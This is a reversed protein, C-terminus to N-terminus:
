LSPPAGPLAQLARLTADLIREIEELEQSGAQPPIPGLALRAQRELAQAGISAATGALAHASRRCGEADARQAAQRMEGTLRSLDAAFTRVVEDFVNPPLEAALQLAIQPDLVDVDHRHCVARAPDVRRPSLVM